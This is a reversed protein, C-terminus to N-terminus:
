NSFNPHSLNHSAELWEGNILFAITGNNETFGEIYKALEPHCIHAILIEYNLVSIEKKFYNKAQKKTFCRFKTIYITETKM